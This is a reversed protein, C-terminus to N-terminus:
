VPPRILMQLQVNPSHNAAMQLKFRPVEHCWWLTAGAGSHHEEVCFFFGGSMFVATIEWLAVEFPVKHFRTPAASGFRETCRSVRRSWSVPSATLSPFLGLSSCDTARHVTTRTCLPPRRGRRRWCYSPIFEDSHSVDIFFVDHGRVATTTKHQSICETQHDVIFRLASLKEEFWCWLLPIWNMRGM